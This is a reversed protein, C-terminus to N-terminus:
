FTLSLRYCAGEPLNTQDFWALLDLSWPSMPIRLFKKRWHNITLASVAAATNRYSLYPKVKKNIYFFEISKGSSINGISGLIQVGTM